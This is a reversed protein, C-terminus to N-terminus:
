DEINRIAAKINLALLVYANRLRSKDWIDSAGPVKDANYVAFPKKQGVRYFELRCSIICDDFRYNGMKVKIVYKAADRHSVPRLYKSKLFYEFNDEADVCEEAYEKQAATGKKAFYDKVPIKDITQHSYDWEIVCNSKGSHKIEDLSGSVPKIFAQASVIVSACLAVLLVLIKKM